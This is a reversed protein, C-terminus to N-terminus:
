SILQLINGALLAQREDSTLGLSDVFDLTLAPDEWPCDSGFFIRQIGHKNIIQKAKDKHTYTAAMATDFYVNKLGALHALVQDEMRLGGMHALVMKLGPFAAAVEASAKPAAHVLDPSYCDWGAHFVIFLGLDACTAYIDWMKPDNIMFGQYDPHLKVGVLGAEKIRILEQKWDEAQFHVSGLPIFEDRKNLEAASATISAQQSPKTAINLLVAKDIGRKQMIERTSGVTGNTCPTIGSIDALKGVAKEAIKEPFIHVHADIIM